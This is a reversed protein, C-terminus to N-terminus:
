TAEIFLSLLKLHTVSLYALSSNGFKVCLYALSTKASSFLLSLCNRVPAVFSGFLGADVTKLRNLLRFIFLIGALLTLPASFFQICYEETV